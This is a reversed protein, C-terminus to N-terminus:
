IGMKKRLDPLHYKKIRQVNTHTEHYFYYGIRRKMDYINIPKQEVSAKIDYAKSLCVQMYEWYHVINQFDRYEGLHEKLPPLINELVFNVTQRTLGGYYYNILELQEQSTMNDREPNEYFDKTYNIIEDCSKEVEDLLDIIETPIERIYALPEASTQMILIMDKISDYPSFYPKYGWPSLVMLDDLRINNLKRYARAIDNLKHSVTKANERHMVEFHVSWSTMGPAFSVKVWGNKAAEVCADTPDTHQTLGNRILYAGHDQLQELAIVTGDPKIWYGYESFDVM